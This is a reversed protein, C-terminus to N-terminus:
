RNKFSGSSPIPGTTKYKHSERACRRHTPSRKSHPKCGRPASFDGIWRTLANLLGGELPPAHGEEVLRHSTECLRDLATNATALAEHCAEAANMPLWTEIRALAYRSATLQAGLGDHLERALRAREAEQSAVLEAALERVRANLREIEMHAQVLEQAATTGSNWGTDARADLPPVPTSTDIQGDREPMYVHGVPRSALMSLTDAPFQM